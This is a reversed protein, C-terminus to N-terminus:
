IIQHVNVNFHYHAYCLGLLNITDPSSPGCLVALCISITYLFLVCLFLCRQLCKSKKESSLYFSSFYSLLAFCHACLVICFFLFLLAHFLRSSSLISFCSSFSFQLFCCWTIFVISCFATKIM